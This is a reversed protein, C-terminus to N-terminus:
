SAGQENQWGISFSPPQCHGTGQSVNDPMGTLASISGFEPRDLGILVSGRQLIVVAAAHDRQIKIGCKQCDHIRQKLTKKVVNGCQPCEQSTGHAAVEVVKVGFKDAVRKLIRIFGGWGADGIARSLNGGRLLGQLNFSEVCIIGYRKVLRHSERYHFERRLNRVRISLISVPLKSKQFNKASAIPRGEAKARMLKRSSARQVRRFRKLNNKLFRPNSVHEGDSTTIFHQLGVDIGVAPLSSPNATEGDFKTTVIVYWRGDCERKIEATKITGRIDRHVLVKIRGVGFLDVIYGNRGVPADAYIARGTLRSRLKFGSQLPNCSDFPICTMEGCRRFKPYGPSAVKERVRRFFNQFAKKVRMSMDRLVCAPVRVWWHPGSGGAKKDALQSNRVAALARYIETDSPIRNEFEYADIRISVVSNYIHRLTELYENLLLEQSATPYM